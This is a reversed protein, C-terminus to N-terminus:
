NHLLCSIILQKIIILEYNNHVSLGSHYIGRAVICLDKLRQFRPDMTHFPFKGGVWSNPPMTM